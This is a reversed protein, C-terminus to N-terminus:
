CRCAQMFTVLRTLGEELAEPQAAFSVRVFGEAGFAVGPIAVVHAEELLRRAFTLSNPEPLRILCYFAGDPRVYPIDALRNMLRERQAAYFPRQASLSDPREFVALAVRQSFTSAATNVFQHVKVIAGMQAAPAMLWGLRLGTLANSKSLSNVVITHPYLTAMSVYPADYVLERYVEDILVQVPTPFRSLGEALKRLESEPWVRGSPNAPSAILVLRTAPGVAELVAEADPAFGREPSLTVTRVRVGEMQCIKAYAPYGPEVILVEDTAPNLLAKIALYLAEQSGVTVCVNEAHSLELYRYHAAIAERLAPQGANPSYPCGNERVWDLAAEFPATDPKLTPEGLGLDIDGPRKQANLARILSPPIQELIPNM